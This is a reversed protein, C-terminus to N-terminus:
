GGKAHWDARKTNDAEGTRRSFCPLANARPHRRTCFHIALPKQAWSVGHFVTFVLKDNNKLSMEECAGCGEVNAWNFGASISSAIRNSYLAAEFVIVFEVEGLARAQWIRRSGCQKPYKHYIYAIKQM